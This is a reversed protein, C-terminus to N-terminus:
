PNAGPELSIGDTEEAEAFADEASPVDPEPNHGDRLPSDDPSNGKTGEGEKPGGMNASGADPTM